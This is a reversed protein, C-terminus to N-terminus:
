TGHTTERQFPKSYHRKTTNNFKINLVSSPITTSTNKIEFSEAIAMVLFKVIQYDDWANSSTFEAIAVQDIETEQSETELEEQRDEQTDELYNVHLGAQRM